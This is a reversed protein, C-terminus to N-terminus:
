FPIESNMDKQVNHWECSKNCLIVGTINSKEGKSMQLFWLHHVAISVGWLSAEFMNLRVLKLCVLGYFDEFMNLPEMHTGFCM